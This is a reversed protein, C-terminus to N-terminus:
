KQYKFIFINAVSVSKLIFKNNFSCKEMYKINCKYNCIELEVPLNFKGEILIFHISLPLAMFRSETPVM